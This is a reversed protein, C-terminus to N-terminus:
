QTGSGSGNEKWIEELGHLWSMAQYAAITFYRSGKYSNAYRNFVSVTEEWWSADGKKLTTLKDKFLMWGESAIKQSEKLYDDM